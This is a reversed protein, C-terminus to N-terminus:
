LPTPISLLVNGSFADLFAQHVYENLIDERSKTYASGDTDNPSPFVSSSQYISEIKESYNNEVYNKVLARYDQAADQCDIALNSTTHDTNYSFTNSSGSSGTLYSYGSANPDYNSPKYKTDITGVFETDKIRMTM